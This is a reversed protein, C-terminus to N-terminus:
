RGKRAAARTTTISMSTKVCLIATRIEEEVKALIAEEPLDLSDIADIVYVLNTEKDYHRYIGWGMYETKM